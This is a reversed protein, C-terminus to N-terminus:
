YGLWTTVGLESSGAVGLLWFPGEQGTAMSLEWSAEWRKELTITESIHELFVDVDLDDGALPIEINYRDSLEAALVLAFQTPFAVALEGYNWSLSQLRIRTDKYRDVLFHAADFGENEDAPYITLDLTARGNEAISTADEVRFPLTDDSTSVQVDNALLDADHGILPTGYHSATFTAIPTDQEFLRYYRSQFRVAGAGTMFLNGRETDAAVQVAELATVEVPSNPGSIESAGVDLDLDPTVGGIGFEPTSLIFSIREDTRETAYSEFQAAYLTAVDGPTLATPYVAIESIDGTFWTGASGNSSGVRTVYNTIPDGMPQDDIFDGNFYLSRDWMLSGDNRMKDTVVLHHWESVTAAVSPGTSGPGYAVWGAGAFFLGFLRKSAVGGTHAIDFVWGSASPRVWFEWSRDLGERVVDPTDFVSAHGNTGVLNVSVDGTWNGAQETFHDGSWSLTHIGEVSSDARADDSMRWWAVPNLSQVAKIRGREAARARAMLNFLDSCEVSVIAEINGPFSAPWRDVYGQWRPYITGNYLAQIRIPVRPKINPYYPSATNHSNYNGTSNNIQLSCTGTDMRDLEYFRGRNFTISQVDTTIDTWLPAGDFVNNGFAAHVAVFANTKPINDGIILGGAGLTWTNVGDSATDGADEGVTWEASDYFKPDARVTVNDLIVVTYFYAGVIQEGGGLGATGISINTAVTSRISGSPTTQTAGLATWTVATHDNTNDNSTWFNVSTGARRVRIWHTTGDVFGTDASATEQSAVGGTDWWVFELRGTTINTRFQWEDGGQRKSVFTQEDEHIGWNNMAVRVRLDLNDTISLLASDPCHAVAGTTPNAQLLQFTM